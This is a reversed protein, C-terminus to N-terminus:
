SSVGPFHRVLHAILAEPEDVVEPDVLVIVGPALAVSLLHRPTPSSPVPPAPATDPAGLGDIVAAELQATTRGVLGRQITALRQGHRQLLKVALVQVLHRYAYRAQRGAYRAPRDVLGSSQYYRVTRADPLPQVRGDTPPPATSLLGAATEVLGSLSFEADRHTHLPHKM